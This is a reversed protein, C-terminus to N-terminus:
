TKNKSNILNEYERKTDIDVMKNGPDLVLVDADHKDIIKKAGYDDALKVLRDFYSAAFLAPVGVNHPYATAIIGKEETDFAGMMSNLYSTGVLPQDALMILVGDAKTHKVLFDTGCAISSGLGSKWSTNELIEVEGIIANRISEAHAGLVVIVSKAVSDKAKRIAHGLLTTDEWPLLQKPRGMRSSAGAALIVIAIHQPSDM